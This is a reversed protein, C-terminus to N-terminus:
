IYQYRDSLCSNLWDNPTGRIGDFHLKSLVTKHSINDFAKSLDLFLGLAIEKSHKDNVGSIYKLLHVMSYITSHKRRFGYQHTYLVNNTELFYVLKKAVIRKLLKSYAPLISIPRYNNFLNKNGSKFIPIVKALKMKDPVIGSDFSFNFIHTLPDATNWIYEKLLQTSINDHGMSTKAKLCNCRNILELRHVPEMYLTKQCPSDPKHYHSFSKHPTPVSESTTHGINAFFTNSYLHM